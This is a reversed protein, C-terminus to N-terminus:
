LVPDRAGAVASEAGEDDHQREECQGSWSGAAAAAAAAAAEHGGGGGGGTGDGSGDGGRGSGGGGGDKAEARLHPLDEDFGLDGMMKKYSEKRGVNGDVVVTSRKAEARTSVEGDGEDGSGDGSDFMNLAFVQPRNSVGGEGSGDGGGGSMGAAMTATGVRHNILSALVNAERVSSSAKAELKRPPLQDGQRAEDDANKDDDPLGGGGGGGGGEKADCVHRGAQTIVGGGGGGPSGGGGGRASIDGSVNRGARSRGDDGATGAQGVKQKFAAEKTPPATDTAPTASLYLCSSSVSSSMSSSSSPDSIQHLKGAPGPGHYGALSGVPVGLKERARRRLQVTIDLELSSSASTPTTAAYVNSGKSLYREGISISPSPSSSAVLSSPRTGNGVSQDDLGDDDDDKERYSGSFPM